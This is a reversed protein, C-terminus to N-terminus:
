VGTWRSPVYDRFDRVRYSGVSATETRADRQAALLRLGADTVTWHDDVSVIFGFGEAQAIQSAVAPPM